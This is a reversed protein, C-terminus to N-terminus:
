APLLELTCAKRNRERFGIVYRQNPKTTYKAAYAEDAADNLKANRVRVARIAIEESDKTLRIHGRPQQLFARFWGKPDDNWSRVIVRGNVVVVWIPIFRHKGSRIYLYKARAIEDLLDPAFYKAMVPIQRCRWVIIAAMNDPM